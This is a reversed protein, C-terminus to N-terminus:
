VSNMGPSGCSKGAMSARSRAKATSSRFTSESEARAINGAGRAICARIAARGTPRSCTAMACLDGLTTDDMRVGAKVMTRAEAADVAVVGARAHECGVLRAWLEFRCLMTATVRDAKDFAIVAWRKGQIRKTM